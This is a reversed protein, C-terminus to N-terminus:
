TVKRSRGPKENPVTSSPESEPAPQDPPLPPADVPSTSDGRNQQAWKKAPVGDILIGDVFRRQARALAQESTVDAQGSRFRVGSAVDYLGPYKPSRAEHM